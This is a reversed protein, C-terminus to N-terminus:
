RKNLPQVRAPSLLCNSGFGGGIAVGGGISALGPAVASAGTNPRRSEGARSVVPLHLQRSPTPSLRRSPQSERSFEIELRWGRALRVFRISGQM